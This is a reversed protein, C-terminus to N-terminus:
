RRIKLGSRRGIGDCRRALTIISYKKLFILHCNEFIVIRLSEYFRGFFIVFIKDM